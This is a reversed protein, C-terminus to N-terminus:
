PTCNAGGGRAFCWCAIPFGAFNFDAPDICTWDGPCTAPNQLDCGSRTCIGGTQGPFPTGDPKIGCRNTMGNVPDPKGCEEDTTCPEGWTHREPADPVAGDGRPPGDTRAAPAPAVPADAPQADLQAWTFCQLSLPAQKLRARPGCRSDGDAVCGIAGTVV